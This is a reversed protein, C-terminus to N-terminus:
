RAEHSRREITFEDVIEQGGDVLVKWKSGSSADIRELLLVSTGPPFFRGNGAIVFGSFTRLEGPKM